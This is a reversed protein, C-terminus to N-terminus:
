CWWGNNNSIPISHIQQIDENSLIQQMIDVHWVKNEHDILTLRWKNLAM